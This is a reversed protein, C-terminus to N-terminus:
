PTAGEDAPWEVSFAGRLDGAKFGTAQDRPYHERLARQIDPAITEGHCLTCLPATVIAKMYRASGDPQTELLELTEAKAGKALRALFTELGARQWPQPANAANRLKLATRSVTAEHERSLRAAIRPAEDGCVEIAAAPGKAAIAHELASKLETGFQQAIARGEAIRPHPTVIERAQQARVASTASLLLLSLLWWPRLANMAAEWRQNPFDSSAQADRGGRVDL